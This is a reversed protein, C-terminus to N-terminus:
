LFVDLFNDPLQMDIYSEEKNIETIWEDTLPILLEKELHNIVLMMQQPYEEIRM